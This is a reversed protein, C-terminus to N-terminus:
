VAFVMNSCQQLSVSVACQRPTVVIKVRQQLPWFIEETYFNGVSWGCGDVDDRPKMLHIEHLQM